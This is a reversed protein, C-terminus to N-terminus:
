GLLYFSFVVGTSRCGDKSIIMISHLEKSCPLNARKSISGSVIVHCLTNSTHSRNKRPVYMYICVIIFELLFVLIKKGYSNHSTNAFSLFKFALSAKIDCDGRLDHYHILTHTTFISRGKSKRILNISICVHM